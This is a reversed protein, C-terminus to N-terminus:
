ASLTIVGEKQDFASKQNESSYLQAYIVATTRGYPLNKVKVTGQSSLMKEIVRRATPYQALLQLGERDARWCNALAQFTPGDSALFKAFSDLGDRSSEFDGRISTIDNQKKPTQFPIVRSARADVSEVARKIVRASDEFTKIQASLIVRVEDIHNSLTVSDAPVSTKISEMEGALRLALQSPLTPSVRNLQELVSNKKSELDEAYRLHFNLWYEEAVLRMATVYEHSGLLTEPSVPIIIGHQDMLRNLSEFAGRYAEFLSRTEKDIRSAVRGYLGVSQDLTADAPLDPVPAYRMRVSAKELNANVTEIVAGLTRLENLVAATLRDRSKGLSPLVVQGMRESWQTLSDVGAEVLGRHVDDLYSSYESLAMEESSVNLSPVRSSVEKLDHRAADIASSTKVMLGEVNARAVDGSELRHVLSDRAAFVAGLFLSSVLMLAIQLPAGSLSTQFGGAGLSLPILLAVFAAPVVFSITLPTAIGMALPNERFKAVKKPLTSALRGLFSSAFIVVGLMVLPIVLLQWNNALFSSVFQAQPSMYNAPLATLFVNLGPLRPRFGDPATLYTLQGFIIPASGAPAGAFFLANDLLLFPSLLFIYSFSIAELSGFGTVAAAAAIIPISVFYAPTFMLSVCLIALSMSTVEVSTSTFVLLPIILAILVAVGVGAALLQFFGFGIMQWLVAFFVLIYLITVAAGRNKLSVAGLGLAILFPVVPSDPVFPVFFFFFFSALVVILSATYETVRNRAKSEIQNM